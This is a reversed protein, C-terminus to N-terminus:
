AGERRRRSKQREEAAETEDLVDQIQLRQAHPVVTPPLALLTYGNMRVMRNMAAAEEAEREDIRQMWSEVVRTFWLLMAGALGLNAIANIDM